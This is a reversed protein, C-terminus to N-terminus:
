NLNLIEGVFYLSGTCFIIAKDNEKAINKLASVISNETTSPIGCSQAIKSLKEKKIFNRQNPIDLAIISHVRNKFMQIFEKHDKNAMMGLLMIIKRGSNLNKLYKEIVSAALPNHAGDLIIQNDKYVYKRLKGQTINQLRAESRIKTIAKKIHPETIKFQDLNRTVAIATSVTSLQFDGLLNPLPLNMKGLKDEYFFGNNNKKYKYNEGLIFKKSSNNFINKKIKELVNKKQESVFIKSGSLLHSCKEYVIEDITGKKLFDRHDIGIPMVVSCINKQFVNSSDLRFLAGAEMINVMAKKRSAHLIWAATIIEHFSISKNNNVQEVEILLDYLEEDSIYKGSFYYRENFKRLSPSINLNCTYGATEFIERASVILSHKSNTGVVQILNSIKSEPSNLDKLLRKIRDLTSPESKPHLQLLRKLIKQIKM